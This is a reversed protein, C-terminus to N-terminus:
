EFFQFIITIKNLFIEPFFYDKVIACFIKELPRNIPHSRVKHYRRWFQLGRYQLTDQQELSYYSIHIFPTPFFQHSSQLLLALGYLVTGPGAAIDLISLHSSLYGSQYILFWALYSCYVNELFYKMFYVHPSLLFRYSPDRGRKLGTLDQLAQKLELTLREKPIKNIEEQLFDVLSKELENFVQNDIGTCQIKHRDHEVLKFTNYIFDIFNFEQKLYNSAAKTKQSLHAFERRYFTLSQESELQKKFLRELWSLRVGSREIEKLLIQAKVYNNQQLAQRFQYSRWKNILWNIM